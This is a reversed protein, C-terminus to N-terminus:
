NGEPTAPQEGAAAPTAGDPDAAPEAGETPEAPPAPEAPPGEGPAGEGPAGEGPSPETAGPGEEYRDPRPGEPAEPSNEQISEFDLLPGEGFLPGSPAQEAAGAQPMQLSDAGFDMPGGLGAPRRPIAGQADLLWTSYEEAPIKALYEARDKGMAAYPGELSEYVKIAEAVKGKLELVRAEGLRAREVILSDNGEKALDSYIKEATGIAKMAQEKNALFDYSATYLENDAVVLKALQGELKSSYEEGTVKLKDFDPNREVLTATVQDWGETSKNSWASKSLQWIALVAVIAVLGFVIHSSYPGIKQTWDALLKALANTELEHREQSKM